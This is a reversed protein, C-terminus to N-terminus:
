MKKYGALIVVLNKKHKTIKDVLADVAEKGLDNNSPQLKMM